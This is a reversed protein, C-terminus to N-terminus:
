QENHPDEWTVLEPLQKEVWDYARLVGDLSSMVFAGIQNRSLGEATNVQRHASITLHGEGVSSEFFRLTPM